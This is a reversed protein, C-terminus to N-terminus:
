SKWINYIKISNITLINKFEIDYIIKNFSYSLHKIHKKNVVIINKWLINILNENFLKMKRMAIILIKNTRKIIEILKYFQNFTQITIINFDNLM